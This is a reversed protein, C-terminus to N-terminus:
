KSKFSSVQTPEALGATVGAFHWDRVYEREFKDQWQPPLEVNNLVFSMNSCQRDIAREMMTLRLATNRLLTALRHNTGEKEAWKHLEDQFETNQERM